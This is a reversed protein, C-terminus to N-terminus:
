PSHVYVGFPLDTDTIVPRVPSPSGFFEDCAQKVGPFGNWVRPHAEVDAYDDILIVAGPSLRPVCYRLGTLISDHFDGDLYAFCIRDPLQTPLTDEFWGPHIVPKRKQWRDHAQVVDEVSATLDGKGMLDMDVSRPEPMGQFSDYVHLTRDAEGVSDLVARTWLATGGRYCGVEVFDGPIQDFAVQLVYPTLALVRERSTTEDHERLLWDFIDTLRVGM